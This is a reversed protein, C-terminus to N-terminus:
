GYTNINKTCLAYYGAPVDYEFKGYGADDNEPSTIATTGFYGNGFNVEFTGNGSSNYEQFGFVYQGTETSSAATISVAGTGTSGSTPDGSNQWTGNKAFYLKNNDLDLAIGLIDGSDWEAGSWGGVTANNNYVDGSANQGLYGYDYQKKGLYDSVATANSARIGVLGQESTSTYKVECYWKGSSVGLTSFATGYSASSNSTTYKTNGNAFTGSSGSFGGQTPHISNLTAFVNSPTDLIQKGSGNLTWDNTNGSSDDGLSSSDQFKLFFGNTGYTVSPSVKPKWIGSTSETEGFDSAAYATGDTFHVHAMLGDYYYNTSGGGGNGIYSTSTSSMYKIVYNQSPYTSSSFSTEQVGNIYLKVRDSATAQTTDFAIVIHYWGSTDRLYRNTKLGIETANGATNQAYVFIQNNGTDIHPLFRSNNNTGNEYGWLTQPTSSSDKSFKFWGSLTGTTFGSGSGTNTLYTSAM